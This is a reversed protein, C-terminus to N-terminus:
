VALFRDTVWRQQLRARRQDLENKHAVDNNKLWAAIYL